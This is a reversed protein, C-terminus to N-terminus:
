EYFPLLKQLWATNTQETPSQNYEKGQESSRPITEQYQTVTVNRFYTVGANSTRMLYITPASGVSKPLVEEKVLTNNVFFRTPKTTDGPLDLRLTILQNLATEIPIDTIAVTAERIETQWVMHNKRSLSVVQEGGAVVLAPGGTNSETEEAIVVITYGTTSEPLVKVLAFLDGMWFLPATPIDISDQKWGPLSADHFTESFLVPPSSVPPQHFRHVFLVVVLFFLGLGVVSGVGYLLVRHKRKFSSLLLKATSYSRKMM